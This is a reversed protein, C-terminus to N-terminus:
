GIGEDVDLLVPTGRSGGARRGKVQWIIGEDNPSTSHEAPPLPGIEKDLYRAQHERM